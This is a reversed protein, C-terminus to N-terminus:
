EKSDSPVKFPDKIFGEFRMLAILKMRKHLNFDSEYFEVATDVVNHLAMNELVLSNNKARIDSHEKQESALTAKLFEMEKRLSITLQNLEVCKDFVVIYKELPVTKM